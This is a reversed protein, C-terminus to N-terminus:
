RNTRYPAFPPNGIPPPNASPQTAPGQASGRYPGMDAAESLSEIYSLLQMIQEESLSNKFSPMRNPYGVVLKANPYLISERLYAEDAIVTRHKGEEDIVDVARGYLGALTPAYQGHCNVCGYQVFLRQGAVRPPVDSGAGALWREYQAPDVVYVSGAM